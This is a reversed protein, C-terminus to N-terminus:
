CTPGRRRSLQRGGLAAATGADPGARMGAHRSAPGAGARGEGGVGGGVWRLTVSPM